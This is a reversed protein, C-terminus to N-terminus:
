EVSSEPVYGTKKMKGTAPNLFPPFYSYDPPLLSHACLCKCVSTKKQLKSQSTSTDAAVRLEM